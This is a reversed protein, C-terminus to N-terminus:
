LVRGGKRRSDSSILGVLDSFPSPFCWVCVCLVSNGILVVGILNGVQSHRRLQNFHELSCRPSDGFVLVSDLVSAWRLRRLKDAVIRMETTVENKEIQM